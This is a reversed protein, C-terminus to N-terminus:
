IRLYYGRLHLYSFFFYFFIAEGCIKEEEEGEEGIRM